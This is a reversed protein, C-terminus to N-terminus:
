MLHPMAGPASASTGMRKPVRVAPSDLSVPRTLPARKPFANASSNRLHNHGVQLVQRLQVPVAVAAEGEGGDGHERQQQEEEEAASCNCM